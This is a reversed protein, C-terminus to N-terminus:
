STVQYFSEVTARLARGLKVADPATLVSEGREIKGFHSQTRGIIRGAAAQSMGAAERAQRLGEPPGTM